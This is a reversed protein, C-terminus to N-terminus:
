GPDGPHPWVCSREIRPEVAEIGYFDATRMAHAVKAAAPLAKSPVCGTWLCGGGIRHREIAAVSLSFKAAIRAATLGGSGMGVIVLDFSQVM